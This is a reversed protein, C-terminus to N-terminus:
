YDCVIAFGIVIVYEKEYAALYREALVKTHHYGNTSSYNIGNNNSTAPITTSTAVGCNTDGVKKKTTAISSSKQATRKNARQRQRQLRQLRSQDVM